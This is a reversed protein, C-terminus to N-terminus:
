GGVLIIILQEGSSDYILMKCAGDLKYITYNKLVSWDSVIYKTVFQRLVVVYLSVFVADVAAPSM